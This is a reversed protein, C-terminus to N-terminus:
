ARNNIHTRHHTSYIDPYQYYVSIWGNIMCDVNDGHRLGVSHGLEHCATKRRNRDDTLLDPNLTVHANTCQGASNLNRCSYLGRYGSGIDNSQRWVVDTNSACSVSSISYNTYADLYTISAQMHSKFAINVNSQFCYSHTLNSPICGEDANCGGFTDASGTLAGPFMLAAGLAFIAM